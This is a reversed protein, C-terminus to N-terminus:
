DGYENAVAGYVTEVIDVAREVPVGLGVLEVMAGRLAEPTDRHWWGREPEMEAMRAAIRARDADTTM